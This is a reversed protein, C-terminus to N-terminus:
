GYEDEDGKVEKSSSSPTREPSVEGKSLSTSSSFRPELLHEIRERAELRRLDSEEKEWDGEWIREAIRDLM